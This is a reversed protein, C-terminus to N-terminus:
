HLSGPSAKRGTILEEPREGEGGSLNLKTRVAGQVATGRRRDKGPSGIHQKQM